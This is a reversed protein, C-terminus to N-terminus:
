PSGGLAPWDRASFTLRAGYMRYGDFQGQYFFFDLATWFRSGERRLGAEASVHPVVDWGSATREDIFAVGPNLSGTLQWTASLDQALRVFPGSSIALRPDWFLHRAAATVPDTVTPASDTYGMLRGSLGLTLGRTLDRGLAAVAQFRATQDNMSQPISDLEARLLAGEVTTTISWRTGLRRAHSVSVHDQVVGILASQLTATIPYAPGHEFRLDTQAGDTGRHTLSGGVSYDWVDRVRQTGFQVASRLTGWRWWRAAELDLYVGQEVEAPVGGLGRGDLWRHGAGGGWSWDGQVEVWEGGVDLRQFDDTDSLAYSTAAVGPQDTEVITRDVEARLLAIGDTARLNAPDQELALEYQRAAAVRDGDWRELDGLMALVDATTVPAAAEPDAEVLPLLAFLRQQAEANRGTWIELQALRYQLGADDTTLGEVQLLAERASEFDALEYELLDAYAQWIVPDDPSEELAQEFLGLSTVFDDAERAQLAQELLTPPPEDVEPVTLAAVLADRLLLGDHAALESEDVGELLGAAVSLRNRAFEVRALEVTLGADDPHRTRADELVMAARDYDEIWAHAQAWELWLSSDDPRQAALTRYQDTAEGVRGLDRLTRALLLRQEFDDAESLLLDLVRAAEAHRGMTLLTVAYERRADRDSPYDRLYDEFVDIAPEYLEDDLLLTVTEWFVEAPGPLIPAPPLAPQTPQPVPRAAVQTVPVPVFPTEPMPFSMGSERFGADLVYREPLVYLVLTLTGAVLLSATVAFRVLYRSDGGGTRRAARSM